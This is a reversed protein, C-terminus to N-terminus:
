FSGKVGLTWSAGYDERRRFQAHPPTSPGSIEFDETANGVNRLNAFVAFRKLFVYEGQVDLNLRKLRWNFTGPEIGRASAVEALRRRGQYNWNARLSFKPRSLSVGWNYTRPVFGSFNAAAPGQTRLATLNAFVQVGRAWRPLFTLAQKYEFELGTMRVDTTLNHQTAVEYNGYTDGDLDYLALFEPTPLFVTSGFFNEFDRRFAGVSIQGVQEFYYELRVKATQASWAKIAVNNVTIRNNAAPPNETDPLTIGGAYQNYDPRGVSTYFAARAVLNERLNYNVNLNPFIRFYEKEARMGRDLFTLQSVTLANTAIPLPRGNAGRIFNGAADRQFNRAPDTLPGEAEVNTQEARVGAIVKLRRNFFAFDTRVYGASVTEQARKSLSVANRYEANADGVFNEPNAQYFEWGKDASLWQIKGFGFPQVRESNNPDLLVAANDDSGAPDLPTTTARRDPGVYNLNYTSGRMDRVVQRVDLGAKVRVPFRAIQLERAANVYANRRLDVSDRPQPSGAATLVYNSLDAENVPAGTAGETVTIVRPRLYFIDDFSVTVGTRRATLSGFYGRSTDRLMNTSHSYGVGGEAQWVPGRHRFVLTPMHTEGDRWRAGNTIRVEGRGASGHTFTPNFNGPEVRNVLYTLTNGNFESGFSGYQYSFSLTSNETLRYDVTAGLSSRDNFKIQDTLVYSTLYPQDPTTDPWQTAATPAVIGTTAQVVGAWSTQVTDQPLFQKSYGGSLTFGFRRNVPVIYSFDFGPQVKYTDRKLPGDTRKFSRYNDRMMLFVSATFLPRSREFASRPVMNISGALASGPSEATPSHLVELRAANHISLQLLESSRATSASSTSALDFGGVTVPVYNAPVGDLSITNATGGVYDVSIGPLFKLFEGVSGDASIGFEGASVVHTINPAFRQENIAIAAGDMERSAGVVVEELKVVGDRAAGGFNFDRQAVAGATVAVTETIPEFGTFFVTVRVPGPPVPTLRYFGGSDTLVQVATGEATVRAKELYEGSRANFVRGEITGATSPQAHAIPGLCVVFGLWVALLVLPTKRKM